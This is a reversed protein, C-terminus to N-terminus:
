HRMRLKSRIANIAFLIFASGTITVLFALEKRDPSNVQTAPQTPTSYIKIARSPSGPNYFDHRVSANLDKNNQHNDKKATESKRREKPRLAEIVLSVLASGAVGFLIGSLFGNRSDVGIEYPDTTVVSLSPSGPSSRSDWIFINEGSLDTSPPPGKLMSVQLPTVVGNLSLRQQIQGIPLATKTIGQFSTEIGPIIGSGYAGDQKFLFETPFSLRVTYTSSSLHGTKIYCYVGYAKLPPPCFDSVGPNFTLTLGSLARATNGTSVTVDLEDGYCFDSSICGVANENILYNTTPKSEFIVGVSMFAMQSGAGPTPPGTDTPRLLLGVAAFGVTLFMLAGLFLFKRLRSVAPKIWKAFKAAAHTM